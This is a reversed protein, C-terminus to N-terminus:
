PNNEFIKDINKNIKELADQEMTESSQIYTQMTFAASHHGLISSIIKINVGAELMLTACSHRLDHLTLRPYGRKEMEKALVEFRTSFNRPCM